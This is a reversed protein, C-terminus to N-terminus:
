GSPYGLLLILIKYALGKGRGKRKLKFKPEDIPLGIEGLYIVNM